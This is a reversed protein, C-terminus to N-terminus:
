PRKISTLRRGWGLVRPLADHRAALSNRWVALGFIQQSLTMVLAPLGLIEQTGAKKKQQSLLRAV